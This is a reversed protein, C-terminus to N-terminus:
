GPPAPPSGSSGRGASSRPPTPDVARGILRRASYSLSAARTRARPAAAVSMGSASRARTAREPEVSRGPKPRRAAAASRSSGPGTERVSDPAARLRGPHREGGVLDLGEVLRHAEEVHVRGPEPHGDLHEVDVAPRRRGHPDPRGAQHRQHVRLSRLEIAGLGHGQQVVHAHHRRAREGVRPDAPLPDVVPARPRGERVSPMRHGGLQEEVRAAQQHVEGGVVPAPGRGVSPAELPHAPGRRHAVVPDEAGPPDAATRLRHPM